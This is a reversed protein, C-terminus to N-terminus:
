RRELIPTGEFVRVTETPPRRTWRSRGSPTPGILHIGKGGIAKQHTLHSEGHSLLRVAMQSSGLVFREDWGHPLANPVIVTGGVVKGRERRVAVFATETCIMGSRISESVLLTRIADWPGPAEGSLSGGGVIRQIEDQGYGLSRLVSSPDLGLHRANLLQDLAAIREAALISGIGKAAIVEYGADHGELWIQSPRGGDICRGLVWRSQGPVLDGVPVRSRGQDDTGDSRDTRGDVVVHADTLVPADWMDMIQDLATTIDVERPDSTLFRVAGRGKKAIEKAHYSNPASDICIVSCRRRDEREAEREVMSIIRARDTVEADTILLVHRAIGEGERPQALAEHIAVEMETGGSGSDKLFEIARDITETTGAVPRPNFWKTFTHFLCMNFRDESTLTRLFREVTWDAAEWKPGRM